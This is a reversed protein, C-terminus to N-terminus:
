QLYPAPDLATTGRYVRFDLAAPDGPAVSAIIQGRSVADGVSVLVNEVFRYATLLDDPHRVLVFRIGDSGSSVSIVSGSAAAKVPEGPTASFVLGPNSTGNFARVISGAVPQTMVASPSTEPQGIDPAPATEAPAAATPEDEPL